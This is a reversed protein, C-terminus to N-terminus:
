ENIPPLVFVLSLANLDGASCEAELDYASDGEKLPFIKKVVGAKLGPPFIGDMGTTVLLDGVQILPIAASKQEGGQRDMDLLEGSRLDRAPGEEDPFSYNFGVGKLMSRHSRWLPQSEGRMEGKALLRTGRKVRLSPNLGCDTILRVRSQREGVEDVVGVISTGVVVPSNKAIVTRGLTQNERLGKDIWLSSDWTNLPRFIVRAPLNMLELNFLNLIEAQHRTLNSESIQQGVPDEILRQFISYEQEVLEKLRSIENGLLQNELLLREVQEDKTRVLDAEQSGNSFEFPAKLLLKIEVLGGWIPALAAISHGRLGITLSAPMSLLGFIAMILLLPPRYPTKM